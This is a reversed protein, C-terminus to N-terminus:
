RGELSACGADRGAELARSRFSSKTDNNKSPYTYAYTCLASWTPTTVAGSKFNPPTMGEEKDFCTVWGQIVAVQKATPADYHGTTTVQAAGPFPCQTLGDTEMFDVMNQVDKVCEGSDGTNLTKALCKTRGVASGVPSAKRHSLLITSAVIVVALLLAIAM